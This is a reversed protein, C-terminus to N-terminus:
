AGRFSGEDGAVEVIESFLEEPLATCLAMFAESNSPIEEGDEDTWGGIAVVVHEAYLKRTESEVREIYELTVDKEGQRRLRATLKLLANFFSRNRKGAPKVEVWPAGELQLFEHRVTDLLPQDDSKLQSFNM